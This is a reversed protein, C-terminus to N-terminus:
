FPTRGPTRDSRSTSDSLVSANRAKSVPLKSCPARILWNEGVCIFTTTRVGRVTACIPGAIRPTMRCISAANGTMCAVRREIDEEGAADGAVGDEAARDGVDAHPGSGAVGHRRGLM